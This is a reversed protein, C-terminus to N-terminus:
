REGGGGFEGILGNQVLGALVRVVVSASRPTRQEWWQAIGEANDMAQPHQALYGLIAEGVEQLSTPRDMPDGGRMPACVPMPHPGGHRVRFGRRWAAGNTEEPTRGLFSGGQLSGRLLRPEYENVIMAMWVEEIGQVPLRM